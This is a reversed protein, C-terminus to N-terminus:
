FAMHLTWSINATGTTSGGSTAAECWIYGRYVTVDGTSANYSVSPAYVCINAHPDSGGPFRHYLSSNNISIFFNMSTLNAWNSCKDKVNVTADGSKTALTLITVKHTGTKITKDGAYFTKGSVVDNEAATALKLKSNSLGGPTYPAIGM